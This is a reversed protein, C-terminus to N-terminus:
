MRAVSLFYTEQPSSFHPLWNGTINDRRTPKTPPRLAKNDEIIPPLSCSPLGTIINDTVESKIPSNDLSTNEYYVEHNDKFSPLGSVSEPECSEPTESKIAMNVFEPPHLEAEPESKIEQKNFTGSIQQAENTFSDEMIPKLITDFLASKVKKSYKLCDEVGCKKPQQKGGHAICYGGKKARKSCDKVDCNKPQQKGGHAICYGGNQAQKSCGDVQSVDQKPDTCCEKLTCTKNITVHKNILSHNETEDCDSIDLIIPLKNSENHPQSFIQDETDLEQKIKSSPLGSLSEPECTEFVESKVSVDVYEPSKLEDEHIFKSLPFSSVSESECIELTESKVAVNVYEPTDLEAKSKHKEQCVCAEREYFLTPTLVKYIAMNKEKLVENKAINWMHGVVRRPANVRRNIEGNMRGKICFMQDQDPSSIGLDSGYRPCIQCEWNQFKEVHAIGVRRIVGNDIIIGVNTSLPNPFRARQGNIETKYALATVEEQKIKLSPLDNISESECSELLESKIPDDVYEPPKLEDLEPDCSELTESTVTVDVYELPDLEAEPELKIEKEVYTESIQQEVYHLNDEM